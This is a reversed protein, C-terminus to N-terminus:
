APAETPPNYRAYTDRLKQGNVMVVRTAVEVHDMGMERFTSTSYGAKTPRPFKAWEGPRMMLLAYFDRLASGRKGFRTEPRSPVPPATWEVDAININSM